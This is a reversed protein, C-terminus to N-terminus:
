KEGEGDEEMGKTAHERLRDDLKQAANFGGQKLRQNRAAVELVVALNRGPRIPIILKPISVELIDGFAQTLGLRDYEVDPKWLEFHVLLDISKSDIVAGIGYMEAIDIIGVGRIEMFHKIMAPASGVLRDNSVRRIEVVDDAVLRHGRKVLELATESKGVGSDGTILIGSGFVDVLVGHQTTRPALCNNLFNILKVVVVTAEKESMYVPVENERAAVLMADMCPMGHTVIVCPIKHSFFTKMREALVDPDLQNMYAMEVKGIVQSREFAFGNWFGALQLGPRNIDGSLINLKGTKSPSLVSLNLAKVMHSERIM